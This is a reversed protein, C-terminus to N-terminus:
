NEVVEMKIESFELEYDVLYKTSEVLLPLTTVGPTVNAMDFYVRGFNENDIKELNKETGYLTVDIEAQDPNDLRTKYGQMNNEFAVPLNVLKKSVRDGLKIDLNVKSVSAQRIGSPLLINEFIKIDGDIQTADINIRIEDTGDLVAQSGFLEVSSHDLTISEISKNNPIKGLPVVRIAVTKKPSSIPVTVKVIKPILDVDVKEGNANYAFLPAEVSFTETADEVDILAKVYAISETTQASARVLVETSEFEPEGPFFREDMKNVNLYDHSITFKSTEKKRIRITTSEPKTTVTVRNSFNVPTFKITHEGTQLGSLDLVVKTNSQNKAANVDGSKGTLIVDVNKEYGTVEYVDLDATLTVAHSKVTYTSDLALLGTNSFNLMMYLSGALILSIAKDYKRSFLFKDVAGSFWGFVRKVSKEISLYTEKVSQSRDAINKARRTKDELKKQDKEVNSMKNKNTENNAM